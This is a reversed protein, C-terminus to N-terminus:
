EIEVVVNDVAVDASKGQYLSAVGAAFFVTDTSTWRHTNQVGASVTTTDYTATLTNAGVDVLLLVHHWTGVAPPAANDSFLPNGSGNSQTYSQAENVWFAFSRGELSDQGLFFPSIAENPTPAALLAFDLEAKVRHAPAPGKAGVSLTATSTATARLAQPASAFHVPDLAVSGGALYKTPWEAFPNANDEPRDFDACFRFAPAPPLRACFGGSGPSAADIATADVSAGDPGSFIPAAGDAAGDVSAADDRHFGSWDVSVTCALPAGVLVAAGITRANM